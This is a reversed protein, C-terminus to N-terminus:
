GLFLLTSDLPTTLCKWFGRLLEFSNGRAPVVRRGFGLAATEPPSLSASVPSVAPILSGGVAPVRSGLVLSPTKRPVLALPASSLARPVKQVCRVQHCFGWCTGDGERQRLNGFPVKPFAGAAGLSAAACGCRPKLGESRRGQEDGELRCPFPSRRGREEGVQLIIRPIIELKCCGADGARSPM